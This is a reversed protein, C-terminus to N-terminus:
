VVLFLMSALSKGVCKELWSVAHIGSLPHSLVGIIFPSLALRCFALTSSIGNRGNMFEELDLYPGSGSGIVILSKM